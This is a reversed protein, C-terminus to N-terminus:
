EGFTSSKELAVFYEVNASTNKFNSILKSSISVKYDGALVKFNGINFVFSFTETPRSTVDALEISFANSTADKTDTVKATVAGDSSTTSVVVDTVGLASAAKRLSNLDDATLTFVLETTPMTIDKTPSTLIGVDSFFYKVSRNGEVISVSKMDDSFKLEPDNFMSVVSLFENLDYVGFENPFSEAVTAAAMINKAESMTKLVNGSRFVINSNISAFNKLVLLTEESLKM